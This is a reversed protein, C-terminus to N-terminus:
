FVCGGSVLKAVIRRMVEMWAILTLTVGGATPFVTVTRVSTITM